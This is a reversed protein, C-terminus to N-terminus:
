RIQYVMTGRRRFEADRSRFVEEVHGQRIADMLLRYWPTLEMQPDRSFDYNILVHTIGFRRLAEALQRGNELKEYPILDHQGPNAWFYPREFYYGRTEQYLAVRSHAPLSNVFRSAEYLGPLGANLYDHESVAGTVVAASQVALPAHMALNLVLALGVFLAASVKLMRSTLLAPVVAAVVALPAFVPVLYRVQQSMLLWVGLSVLAYLLLARVKWSLGHVWLLLPLLGAWVPGLSGVKDGLLTPGTIFYSRGHLGLNWFVNVWEGLRALAAALISGAQGGIGLSKLVVMAGAPDYHLGFRKQEKAYEIEMGQNWSFSHPFLSYYFPYVPNHTWLWNKLYWPSALLLGLLGFALTAQLAPIRARPGSRVVIWLLGLGLLGFQLLATYKTGLAFGSLVGALAAGELRVRPRGEEFRVADVLATLALLQFLSTGLDVYATGMEWLVVPMSGFFAAAAPGAWAPPPRGGVELRSTFVGAALAALWGAAWHFLKGAPGGGFAMGVTYLMEMTFPFHTHSDYAIFPIRGERLYIRPAALHYSLSDWDLGNVAALASFLTTLALLGVYGSLLLTAWKEVPSKQPTKRVADKKRDRFFLVALVWGAVMLAGISFPSLLSLLGLALVLYALTGMGLALVYFPRLPDPRSSLRLLRLWGWGYGACAALALVLTAIAVLHPL